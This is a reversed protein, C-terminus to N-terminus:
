GSFGFVASCGDHLAIAAFCGRHGAVVALDFAALCVM